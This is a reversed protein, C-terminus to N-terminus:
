DIFNSQVILRHLKISRYRYDTTKLLIAYDTSAKLINVCSVFIFINRLQNHSMEALGTNLGEKCSRFRKKKKNLLLM